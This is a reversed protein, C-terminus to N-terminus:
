SSLRKVDKHYLADIREWFTLPIHTVESLIRANEKTIPDESATIDSLSVEYKESMQKNVIDVTTDNEELWEILFERFHVAYDTLIESM